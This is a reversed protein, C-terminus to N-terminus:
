LFSAIRRITSSPLTCSTSTIEFCQRSSLKVSLLPWKDLKFAKPIKIANAGFYYFHRSVLAFQKSKEFDSLPPENDMRTRSFSRYYEARTPKEDVRMAYILKGHGASRNGKGGTGIIWDGVNALEVVNKPKTPYDRFKCRCLTCIKGYPNPAYGVDHDVVYSYLKM